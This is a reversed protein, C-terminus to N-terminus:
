KSRSKLWDQMEILNRSMFWRGYDFVGYDSGAMASSFRVSNAYLL